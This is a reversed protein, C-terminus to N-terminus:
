YLGLSGAYPCWLQDSGTGTMGRLCCCRGFAVVSFLVIFVWENMATFEIRIGSLRPPVRAMQWFSTCAYVADSVSLQGNCRNYCLYDKSAAFSPPDFSVQELTSEGCLSGACLMRTHVLCM